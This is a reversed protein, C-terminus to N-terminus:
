IIVRAEIRDEFEPLGILEVDGILPVQGVGRLLQERSEEMEEALAPHEVVFEGVEGAGHLTIGELGGGQGGVDRPVIPKQPNRQEPRGEEIGEEKPLAGAFRLLGHPDEERGEEEEEGEGGIGFGPHAGTVQDFEEM